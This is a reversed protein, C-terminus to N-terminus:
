RNRGGNGHGRNGNGHGRNGNGRGGNGGCPSFNVKLKMNGKLDATDLSILASTNAPNVNPAIRAVVTNRIVFRFNRDGRAACASNAAVNVSNSVQWDEFIPNVWRKVFLPNKERGQGRPGKIEVLNGRFAAIAGKDLVTTGRYDFSITASDVKHGQPIRANIVINCVKQSLRSDLRTSPAGDEGAEGNDNNGDSQPAQASFRDFLITVVQQDPTPIVTTSGTPCGTGRLTIIEFNFDNDQAFSLSSLLSLLILFM